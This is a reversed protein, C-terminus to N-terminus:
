KHPCFADSFRSFSMKRFFDCTQCALICRFFAFDSFKINKRPGCKCLQVFSYWIKGLPYCNLDCYSTSQAGFFSVSSEFHERAKFCVM